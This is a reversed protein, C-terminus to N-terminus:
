QLIHWIRHETFRKRIPDTSCTVLVVLLGALLETLDVIVLEEVLGALLGAENVLEATLDVVLEVEYVVKWLTGVLEATTDLEWNGGANGLV